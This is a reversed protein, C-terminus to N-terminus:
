AWFGDVTEALGEGSLRFANFGQAVATGDPLVAKWRSLLSGRSCLVDGDRVMRVGPFRAQCAAIWDSLAARGAVEAHADRFAVDQAVAHALHAARLAPDPEGWAALWEDALREPTGAAPLSRAFGALAAAYGQWGGEHDRREKETPLGAHTLVIRTGKSVSELDISVRTSGPPIAESQPGKAVGWSFALRRGPVVEEVKGEVVVGHRDFHIRVPAGVEPVLEVRAALWRSLLGAEVLCRWVTAPKAEAVVEVTVVEANKADPV